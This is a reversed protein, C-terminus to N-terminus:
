YSRVGKINNYSDFETEDIIRAVQGPLINWLIRDKVEVIDESRKIVDKKEEVDVNGNELKYGCSTCFKAGQRLEKNCKPCVNSKEAIQVVQEAIKTGCFVCFKAGPRLEKNCNPCNM